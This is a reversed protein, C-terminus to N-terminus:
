QLIEVKETGFCSLLAPSLAKEENEREYLQSRKLIRLGQTPCFKGLKENKRTRKKACTARM